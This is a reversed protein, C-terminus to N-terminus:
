NKKSSVFVVYSVLINELKLDRHVLKKSHLYELGSCIQITYQVLSTKATMHKINEIPHRGPCDEKISSTKDLYIDKLNTVCSAMLM